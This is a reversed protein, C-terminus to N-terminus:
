AGKKASRKPLAGSVCNMYLTQTPYAFEINEKSFRNLIDLNIAQQIDMYTNYDPSLVYYVVEFILAFDGYEKFHARDFRTMKQSAVTKKIMQPIASVMKYPTEYTVGLSFVVRREYMRKYNRVRSQLLDANSFIIQEGSLSRVRTTKLGIHDVTGLYDGVIIFDGIVFPKDLVISLSALLDGLINQVALAVAIGGVGLGAVLTTINVGLNDLLLLFTVVWLVIKAIFSLASITTASGADKSIKKKVYDSSWISIFTNVWIAVQLLLAIIAVTNIIKMVAFSLTLVLSAIYISLFILFFPKTKELLDVAIDDLRYKTKKALAALRKALIEKLIRLIFFGAFSILLAFFWAKLTNNYFMQDSFTM